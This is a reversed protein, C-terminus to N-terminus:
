AASENFVCQEAWAYAEDHKGVFTFRYLDGRAPAVIIARYSDDVRASHIKRDRTGKVREYNIGPTTSDAEFQELLEIVRKQQRRPLHRYAELFQITLSIRPM